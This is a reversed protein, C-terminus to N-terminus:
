LSWFYVKPSQSHALFLSVANERMYFAKIGKPYDYVIVPQKYVVDTLYRLMM